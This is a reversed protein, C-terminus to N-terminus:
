RRQELHRRLNTTLTIVLMLRWLTSHKFSNVGHEEVLTQMDSHITDDWWTIAVHFSYDTVSPEAWKRWQHYAEPINQQPSPIVFDIIM